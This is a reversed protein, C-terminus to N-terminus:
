RWRQRSASSLLWPKDSENHAGDPGNVPAMNVGGWIAHHGVPSTWWKVREGKSDTVM